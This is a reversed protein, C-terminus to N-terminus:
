QSFMITSMIADFAVVVLFSILLYVTAITTLWRKSFYFALGVVCSVLIFCIYIFELSPDKARLNALVIFPACFLALINSIGAYFIIPSGSLLPLVTAILLVKQQKNMHGLGATKVFVECYDAKIGRRNEKAL